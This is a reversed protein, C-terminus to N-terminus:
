GALRARAKKVSMISTHCAQAIRGDPREPDRTIEFEVRARARAQQVDAMTAGKPAALEGADGALERRCNLCYVEGNKKVWAAPLDPRETGPM